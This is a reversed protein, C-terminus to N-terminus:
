QDNKNKNNENNTLNKWAVFVVLAMLWYVLIQRIIFQQIWQLDLLLTLSFLLVIVTTLWKIYFWDSKMNLM